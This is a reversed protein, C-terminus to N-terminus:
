HLTLLRQFFSRYRQLAVRLDETSVQDGRSWQSELQKREATFMQTVRNMLDAVLADADQVARQPEDVFGGQIEHWRRTVAELDPGSLLAGPAAEQGPRDTMTNQDTRHDTTRRDAAQRETMEREAGDARDAPSREAQDARDTPTREM